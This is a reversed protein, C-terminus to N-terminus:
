EMYKDIQNKKALASGKLKGMKNQKVANKGRGKTIKGGILEGVKMDNTIKFKGRQKEPLGADLEDQRQNYQMIFQKIKALLENTDDYDKQNYFNQKARNFRTKLGQGKSKNSFFTKVGTKMNDLFGEDTEEENLSGKAIIEAIKKESLYKKTSEEIVRRLQNENISYKM